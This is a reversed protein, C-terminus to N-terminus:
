MEIRGLKKGWGVVVRACSVVLLWRVFTAGIVRRDGKVLRFPFVKTGACIAM